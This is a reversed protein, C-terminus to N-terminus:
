EAHAPPLVRQLYENIHGLTFAMQTYLFYHSSDPPAYVLESHPALVLPEIRAYNIFDAYIKSRRAGTVWLEPRPPDPTQTILLLKTTPLALPTRIISFPDRQVAEHASLDEVISATRTEWTVGAEWYEGFVDKLWSLKAARLPNLADITQLGFMTAFVPWWQAVTVKFGTGRWNVVSYMPSSPDLLVLAKVEDPYAGAYDIAVEGGGSHGIMVTAPHEGAAALGDHMQLIEDDLTVPTRGDSSWGLGARDILCARWRDRLGVQYPRMWLGQSHGGGLLLVTPSGKPGECWIHLARGGVEVMKGPPPYKGRAHAQQYLAASGGIALLVGIGICVGGMVARWKKATGMSTSRRLYLFLGFVVFCGAIIYPAFPSMLFNLM